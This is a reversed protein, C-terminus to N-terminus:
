LKKLKIILGINMLINLHWFLSFRLINNHIWSIYIDKSPNFFFFWLKLM